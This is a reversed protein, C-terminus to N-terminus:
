EYRKNHFLSKKVITEISYRIYIYLSNNNRLDIRIMNLAKDMQFFKRNRFELEELDLLLIPFIAIIDCIINDICLNGKEIERRRQVCVCVRKEKEPSPSSSFTQLIHIVKIRKTQKEGGKEGRYSLYNRTTKTDFSVSSLKTDFNMVFNDSAFKWRFSCVVKSDLDHPFISRDFRAICSINWDFHFLAIM